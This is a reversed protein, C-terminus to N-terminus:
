TAINATELMKRDLPFFNMDINMQRKRRKIFCVRSDYMQIIQITVSRAQLAQIVGTLNWWLQYMKSYIDMPACQSAKTHLSGCLRAKIACEEGAESRLPGKAALVFHVQNYLRLNHDFWLM